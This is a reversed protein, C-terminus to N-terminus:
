FGRKAKVARKEMFEDLWEKKFRLDRGIRSSTIKNGRLLIAMTTYSIKLYEMAENKTMYPDPAVTSKVNTM